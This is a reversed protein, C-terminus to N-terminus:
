KLNYNKSYKYKALFGDQELISRINMLTSKEDEVKFDILFADYTILVLQTKKNKLLEKIKLITDVNRVTEYNQIIYNFLKTRNITSDYKIRKGSPLLYSRNYYYKQYEEEIYQKIKKFFEIHEYREDINGYLQKFTIVKSQEYEDPSIEEKEFYLKGLQQYVPEKEFETGILKSILRPHYGDYDFEVFYDNKPVILSRAEETKPIALFNIGNFANTPRGTLNYLNYSSYIVSDKEFYEPYNVGFFKDYGKIVGIGQKEIYSYAEILKNHYENTDELGLYLGIESYVCEAIEYHKSIPVIENANYQTSYKRYIDKKIITDCEKHFSKGKQELLIFNIDILKTNEFFYSHFKKDLVYVRKHQEVFSKISDFSISFSESHKVCLMYGKTGNNYYVLSPTSLEQHYLDNNTILQVYCEDSVELRSLQEELEVIFYM